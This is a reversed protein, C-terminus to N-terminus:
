IVPFKINLLVNANESLLFRSAKEDDLSSFRYTYTMEGFPSYENKEMALDTLTDLFVNNLIHYRIM